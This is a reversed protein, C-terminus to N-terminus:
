FRFIALFPDLLFSLSLFRQRSLRCIIFFFFFAHRLFYSLDLIFSFSSLSICDVRLHSFSLRPFLPSYYFPLSLTRAYMRAYTVRPLYFREKSQYACSRGFVRCGYRPRFRLQLCTEHGRFRPDTPYSSVGPLTPFRFTKSRSPSGHGIKGVVDLESINRRVSFM